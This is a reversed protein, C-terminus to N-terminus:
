CRRARCTISCRKWRRIIRRCVPHPRRRAQRPRCGADDSGAAIVFESAADLVIEPLEDVTRQSAPDYSDIRVVHGDDHEIRVPGLAGAPFVDIVHGHVAAEGPEDVLMDLGYSTRRSFRRSRPSTPEPRSACCPERAVARPPVRQLVAEPTAILLPRELGGTLRRLVSMRRGMIDRSPGSPDYPLSDWRPFVLVPCDAFLSHINAGLYEAQQESASLFLLGRPGAERWRAVIDLALAGRPGPIEADGSDGDRSAAASEDIVARDTVAGDQVAAFGRATAHGPLCGRGIRPQWPRLGRIPSRPGTRRAPLGPRSLGPGYEPDFAVLDARCGPALRGLTHGMGLFEGSNSSAFRLADTLPVGLLDVCNRVASAM